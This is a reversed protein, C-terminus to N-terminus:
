YIGHIQSILLNRNIIQLHAYIYDESKRFITSFSNFVESLEVLNNSELAIATIKNKSISYFIKLPSFKSALTCYNCILTDGTLNSYFSRFRDSVVVLPHEITGVGKVKRTGSGCFNCVGKKWVGKQEAPLKFFDEPNSLSRFFYSGLRQWWIKGKKTIGLYNPRTSTIANSLSDNLIKDDEYELTLSTSSLTLIIGVKDNTLLDAKFGDEIKVPNGKRRGMLIQMLSILGMDIWFDGTRRLEISKQM